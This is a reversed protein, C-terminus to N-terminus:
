FGRFSQRSVLSRKSADPIAEFPKYKVPCLTDKAPLEGTELFKILHESTCDSEAAGLGHGVADQILIGSGEFFPAMKYISGAVPDIRNGTFLLPNSTKIPKKFGPFLQSKPPAVHLSRCHPTIVSSWTAGVYKSIGRLEDIYEQLKQPSSINYKGNMDNCAIILKPHTPLFEDGIFDSKCRPAYGKYAMTPILSANRNAELEHLKLALGPYTAVSSYTAILIHYRVDGGTVVAPLEVFAPDTVPLPNDDVFALVADLRAQIADASSDNRYFACNPGAEHCFQAFTAVAEDAQLLNQTWSGGYHDEVDVVGDIIMRGVRDPYLAAFTTGLTSGYSGGFFDLKAEEKPKGQGEALLEAYRLMDAATAPTNAYRATEVLNRSCWEGFAGAATWFQEVSRESQVDYQSYVEKDFAEGLWPTGPFCELRPGSNNVGRPDMAVLNHSTGLLSVLQASSSMLWQVASFGPGGPNLIINGQTPQRAAAHKMFAITTTGATANTYDLPVALNLCTFNQFCPTWALTSTTPVDAFSLAM